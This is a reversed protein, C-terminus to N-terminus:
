IKSKQLALAIIDAHDFALQPLSYIPFWQAEKADDAGTAICDKSCIGWYCVSVMHGRPDRGPTGIAALQHLEINKLGTEESLEREAATKLDENEDVFGGPIAWMDKFPQNKRKILIITTSIASKYFLVADVTVFTNSIRM